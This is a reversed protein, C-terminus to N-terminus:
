RVGTGYTRVDGRTAQVLALAAGVQGVVTDVDDVTALRPALDKAQRVVVVPGAGLASGTRGALVAGDGHRSMGAALLGLGQGQGAQEGPVEGGTVVIVARAGPVTPGDFTVFGAQELSALADTRGNSPAPASGQGLLLSGLLDGARARPDVLAADITVGAPAANDVVGRLRESQADAYLADTLTLTGAVSGAAQTVRRTIQEVDGRDAGPAVVLLVPVGTLGRGLASPAADDAFGDAARARDTLLHNSTRLQDVQERLDRLDGDTTFRALVGGGLAVGVAFAFLVAAWFLAPRRAGSSRLRRLNRSPGPM